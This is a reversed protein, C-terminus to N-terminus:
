KSSYFVGKTAGKKIVLGLDRLKKLDYRLTRENVALFRRRLFDFNVLGHDEIIRLIEARRPLLQDELSPPADNKSLALDVAKESQVALAELMFELYAPPKAELATYYEERHNDLYEELSILGKMDYREKILIAQMLIRGVRGNGDFFPHIKEFVFHALSARVPILPESESNLYALLKELLSAALKPSPAFYVATGASDFIGGPGDRFKGIPYSSVDKMVLEHLHLINEKTFGKQKRSFEKRVWGLAKSINNIELREKSKAFTLGSEKIEEWRLKNGEIRASFLSSKLLSQRRIIAEWEPAIAVKELVKKSVEIRQLFSLCKPTLTYDPPVKM